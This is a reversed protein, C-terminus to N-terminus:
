QQFRVILVESKFRVKLVESNFGCKQFRVILVESNFRV